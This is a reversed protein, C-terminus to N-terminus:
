LLRGATRAVRYRAPKAVKELEGDMVLKTLWAKAQPKSVNLLAAVEAESKPEALEHGLIERVSSFLAQAPTPRPKHPDREVSQAPATSPQEAKTTQYPPSQARRSRFRKRSQNRLWPKQRRQLFKPSNMAIMPTRGPACRAAFPGRKRKWRKRWQACISSCFATEGVARNRWGVDWRERFGVDRRAGRRGLRLDGQQAAHCTGCQLGGGSSPSILVLKHDM